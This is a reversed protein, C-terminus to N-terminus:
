EIIIKVKREGLGFREDPEYLTVTCSGKSRATVETGSLSVKSSSGRLSMASRVSGRDTYNPYLLELLDVKEGRSLVLTSELANSALASSRARVTFTRATEQGDEQWVATVTCRGISDVTLMGNKDVSAINAPKVTWDAGDPALLGLNLKMGEELIFLSETTTQKTESRVGVTIRQEHYTGKNDWGGAIIRATGLKHSTVKGKQDITAVQENSSSWTMTGISWEEGPHDEDEYKWLVEGSLDRIQGVKMTVGGRYVQDVEKFTYDVVDDYSDYYSYAYAPAAMAGALVGALALALLKKKM